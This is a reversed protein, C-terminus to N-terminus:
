PFGFGGSTCASKSLCQHVYILGYDNFAIDVKALVDKNPRVCDDVPRSFNSIVDLNMPMHGNPVGWLVSCPWLTASNLNAFVGGDSFKCRNMSSGFVFGSNAFIAVEHIVRMDAM